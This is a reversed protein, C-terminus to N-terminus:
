WLYLREEVCHLGPAADVLDVVARGYGIASNLFDHLSRYLVGWTWELLNGM